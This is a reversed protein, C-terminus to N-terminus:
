GFMLAGLLDQASEDLVQEIFLGDVLYAQGSDDFKTGLDIRPHPHEGRELSVQGNLVGEVEDGMLQVSGFLEAFEGQTPSDHRLFLHVIEEGQLLIREPEEESHM